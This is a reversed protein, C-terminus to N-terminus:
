ANFNKMALRLASLSNHSAEKKEETSESKMKEESEEKKKENKDGMAPPMPVSMSGCESGEAQKKLAPPTLAATSATKVYHAKVNYAAEKTAGLSNYLDQLYM